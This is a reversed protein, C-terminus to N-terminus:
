STNEFSDPVFLSAVTELWFCGGSINQLFLHEQFNRLIWPFVDTGSVRKLYLQLGSAQLKILFSDRPCTNEQSNQSIELFIEKASCSREVAEAWYM